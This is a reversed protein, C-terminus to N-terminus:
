APLSSLTNAFIQHQIYKRQNLFSLIQYVVCTVYQSPLQSSTQSCKDHEIKIPPLVFYPGAIDSKKVTMRRQETATFGSWIDNHCDFLLVVLHVCFLNTFSHIKGHKESKKQQWHQSMTPQAAPLADPRYFVSHHPALMTIQRSCPASKCIAWSIGSGSM